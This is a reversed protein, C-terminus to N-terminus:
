VWLPWHLISIVFDGIESVKQPIQRQSLGGLLRDSGRSVRFILWIRSDVMFGAM